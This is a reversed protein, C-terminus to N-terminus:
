NIMLQNEQMSGYGSLGQKHILGRNQNISSMSMRKSIIEEYDLNNSDLGCLMRDSTINDRLMEVLLNCTEEPIDNTLITFNEKKEEADYEFLVRISSRYPLLISRYNLIDFVSLSKHVMRKNEM